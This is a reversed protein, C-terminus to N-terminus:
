KEHFTNLGNVLSRSDRARFLTKCNSFYYTNHDVSGKAVSEAITRCLSVAERGRFRGNALGAGFLKRQTIDRAQTQRTQPATKRLKNIIGSEPLDQSKVSQSLQSIRTHNSRRM